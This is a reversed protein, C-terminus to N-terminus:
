AARRGQRSSVAQQQTRPANLDWMSDSGHVALMDGYLLGFSAAAQIMVILAEKGDWQQGQYIRLAFKDPDFEAAHAMHRVSLNVVVTLQALIQLLVIDAKRCRFWERIVMVALRHRIEDEGVVRKGEAGVQHLRVRSTAQVFCLLLSVVADGPTPHNDLLGEADKSVPEVYQVPGHFLLRFAHPIQQLRHAHQM